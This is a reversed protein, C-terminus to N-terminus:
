FYYQLKMFARFNDPKLGYETDDDGIYWKMDLTISTDDRVAYEIAGNLLFSSDDLCIVTGLHPNYDNFTFPRDFTLSLYNRRIRDQLIQNAKLIKSKINDDRTTLYLDSDNKLFNYYENFEDDNYGESNRYYEVSTKLDNSFTYTAGVAFNVYIDDDAEKVFELEDGTPFYYQGTANQQVFELDNGKHGSAEIYAGLDGWYRNITLGFYNKKNLEPIRDTRNYTFAVDTDWILFLARLGLSPGDFDMEEPIGSQRQESDLDYEVDPFIIFDFSTNGAPVTMMALYKGERSDLPDVINIQWDMINDVATFTWGVGWTERKKGVKLYALEAVFLDFYFENTIFHTNNDKQEGPGSSLQFGVDAKFQYDELYSINFQTNFEGLFGYDELELINDPNVVPDDKLDDYYGSLKIYNRIGFEFDSPVEEPVIEGPAVQRIDEVSIDVGYRVGARKDIEAGYRIPPEEKIEDGYRVSTQGLSASSISILAICLLLAQTKVKARKNLM